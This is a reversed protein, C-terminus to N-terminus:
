VKLVFKRYVWLAIKVLYFVLFAAGIWAFWKVIGAIPKEVQVEKVEVVKNDQYITDHQVKLVDKYRTIYKEVWITDRGEKVFISDREYLYISDLRQEVRISDKVITEPVCDITKCGIFAFFMAVIIAAIFIRAITIIDPKM